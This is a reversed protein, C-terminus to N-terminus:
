WRHRLGASQLPDSGLVQQLELLFTRTAEFDQPSIGGEILRNLEWLAAGLAFASKDPPVPRVWISFCLGHADEPQQPHSVHQRRGSHFGRYLLLRWLQPRPKAAAPDQMLKGNFTRHEGLYSNAVALAYFDDDRRTVDIPFGMSIATADAPKEVITVEVGKPMRPTPLTPIDLGASPLKKFESELSGPARDSYGGALGLELAERTYHRRHFEKVDDLTLAKLGQATGLDPHGYPHNQYLEVQLTWRNAWSKM